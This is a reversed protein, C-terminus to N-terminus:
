AYNNTRAFESLTTKMLQLINIGRLLALVDTGRLLALVDAGKLTTVGVSLRSVDCSQDESNRVAMGGASADVRTM